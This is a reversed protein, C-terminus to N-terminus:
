SGPPVVLRIVEVELGVQRRLHDSLRAEAEQVARPTILQATELRARVILPTDGRVEVATIRSREFHRALIEQIDDAPNVARSLAILAMVAPLMLVTVTVLWGYRRRDSGDAFRPRMGLLLFVAWAALSICVINTAFLLAARLGVDIRGAALELGATCLPPMLAAAIAVGALAASVDKRATAYAGIVGSALAVLADLLSPNGRALMEPTPPRGGGVLGGWLVAVLLALLVGAALTILASRVLSLRGTTIGVAFGICPQMFPAVLMAGIIVAPSNLLLGLTALTASVAILTFYDVNPESIEYAYRNIDDQEAPTLRITFRNVLRRARNLVPRHQVARATVIVACPAENLMRESFDGVLRDLLPATRPAYGVVLLDDEDLRAVIGEVPDYANILTRRVRHGEPRGEFSQAIRGLGEYRPRYSEQVYMGEIAADHYAALRLAVRGAVQAPQTGDAPVVVRRIKESRGPRYLAVDCPATALVNKVVLGLDVQDQGRKHVGLVLLDAAYEHAADLIGRAISTARPTRLSVPKGAAKLDEVIPEIKELIGAENEVDGKIVVVAIVEGREPEVLALALDLLGRATAPNAVPVVVRQALDPITQQAM